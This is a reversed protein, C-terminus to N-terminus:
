QATNKVLQIFEKANLSASGVLAGAAGADIFSKINGSNTSGGYLVRSLDAVDKGFMKEIVERIYAISQACDERTAEIANENTSIAWEPEYALIVKKVQEASIDQLVRTMQERLEEKNDGRKKEGICLVPTLGATLAAKVKKNIMEFTEGLHNKRESHGVIVYECGLSVLMTPSIEGTFAGQDEWFCDQAGVAIHESALLQPVFVFPPCLVVRVDERPEITTQIEKALDIAQKSHEPNMKWNAVIYLKNM